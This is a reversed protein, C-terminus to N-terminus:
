QGLPAQWVQSPSHMLYGAALHLGESDRGRSTRLLKGWDTAYPAPFRPRCGSVLRM